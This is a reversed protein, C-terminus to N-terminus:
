RRVPKPCYGHQSGCFIYRLKEVLEEPSLKGIDGITKKDTGPTNSGGNTKINRYALLINERKLIIDVLHTFNEGKKSRAYLSDFVTQMDYYEAHRLDDVCLMKGAIGKPM